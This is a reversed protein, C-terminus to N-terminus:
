IVIKIITKNNCLKDHSKTNYAELEKTVNYGDLGDVNHLDVKIIDRNKNKYFIGINQSARGSLQLGKDSYANQGCMSSSRSFNDSIYAEHLHGSMIYDIKIDSYSYKAVSKKVGNAIDNRYQHGHILLINNGAVDIVQELPDETHFVVSESGIFRARLMNYLMLDYNDSAVIDSWAIDKTMRTENGTIGCFTIKFHTNLHLIFQSMISTALLCAKMRNTANNLLKDLIDDKNLLDGTCCIAISNIGQLKFYAISKDALLKLRRSAIDFDYKNDRLNILENFHLDSLQIVGMCETNVSTHTITSESLNIEKLLTVLEKNAEELANVVRSDERWGKREIRNTDQLKQVRRQLITNASIIDEDTDQRNSETNYDIEEEDEETLSDEAVLSEVALDDARFRRILGRFDNRKFHGCPKGQERYKNEAPFQALRGVECWWQYLDLENKM